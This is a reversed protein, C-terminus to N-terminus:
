RAGSRYQGPRLRLPKANVDVVEICRSGFERSMVYGTEWEHSPSRTFAVEDGVEPFPSQEVSKLSGRSLTPTEATGTDDATTNAPGDTPSTTMRDIRENLIHNAIVGIISSPQEISFVTTTALSKAIASPNLGFQLLLSILVCADQISHQLQSGHRQGDAYFVEIPTATEPDLGVTIHFSHEATETRWALKHTVAPRRSPPRIRVNM